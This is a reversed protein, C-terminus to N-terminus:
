SFREAILQVRGRAFDLELVLDARAERREFLASRLEVLAFPSEDLVLTLDVLAEGFEVLAMRLELEQAGLDVHCGNPNGLALLGDGQLHVLQFRCVVLACRRCGLERLLDGRNGVAFLSDRRCLRVGGGADLLQLRLALLDADCGHAM